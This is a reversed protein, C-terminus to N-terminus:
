HCAKHMERFCQQQGRMSRSPPNKPVQEFTSDDMAQVKKPIIYHFFYKILVHM